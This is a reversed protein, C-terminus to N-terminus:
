RTKGSPFAFESVARNISQLGELFSVTTQAADMSAPKSSIFAQTSSPIDIRRLENMHLLIQRLSAVLAIMMKKTEESTAALQDMKLNSDTAMNKIDDKIGKIQNALNTELLDIRALLELKSSNVIAELAASRLMFQKHTVWPLDGLKKQVVYCGGLVIAVGCFTKILGSNDNYAKYAGVYWTKPKEQSVNADAETLSWDQSVVGYSASNFMLLGFLLHYYLRAKYALERNM